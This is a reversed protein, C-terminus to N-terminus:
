RLVPQFHALLCVRLEEAAQRENLAMNRAWPLGHHQSQRWTGFDAIAAKAEDKGRRKGLAASGASQKKGRLDVDCVEVVAALDGHFDLM